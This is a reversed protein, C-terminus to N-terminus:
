SRIEVKGTVRRLAPFIIRRTPLGFRWEAEDKKEDERWVDEVERFAAKLVREVAEPDGNLTLTFGTM